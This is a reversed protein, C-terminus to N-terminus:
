SVYRSASSTKTLYTLSDRTLDVYAKYDEGRNACHWYNMFHTQVFYPNDWKYVIDEMFSGDCRLMSERSRYLEYCGFFKLCKASATNHGRVNFMLAKIHTMNMMKKQVADMMKIAYGASNYKSHIIVRTDKIIHRERIISSSYGQIYGIVEGDKEMVIAFGRTIGAVLGNYVFDNTIESLMPLLNDPYKEAVDLYLNKISLIDSLSADRIIINSM